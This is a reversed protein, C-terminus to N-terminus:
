PNILTSSTGPPPSSYSEATTTSIPHPLAISVKNAANITPPRRGVPGRAVGRGSGCSTSRAGRWADIGRQASEAFRRRTVVRQAGLMAGVGGIPKAIRIFRLPHQTCALSRHQDRRDRQQDHETDPHPEEHCMPSAAVEPKRQEHQREQDSRRCVERALPSHSPPEPGVLNRDRRHALAAVAQASADRASARTPYPIRSTHRLSRSSLADRLEHASDRKPEREAEVEQRATLGIELPPLGTSRTVRQERM